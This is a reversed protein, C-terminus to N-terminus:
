WGLGNSTDLTHIPQDIGFGRVEGKTTESHYSIIFPQPNDIVFKQIGRAIRRLTKDKLPRNANVGYKAKIEKSTDFISPCPLSWDIIEAATRWPKQIGSIVELRDPEGHTPEPWVISRGDRRAILFFRKRNTPAGYDCARLERYDIKYGLAKLQSKWKQFERGKKSKMPKGKRVPGWDVFEEVNELMIVRPKVKAAWKLVVWALGRINKERPKGGRAKSHHTCDPSAWMLGVPRGAVAKVPDVEWINECYHKTGPHNAKHMAIAEPDHNIAIDVSRGIAMEIGTSAGGGGAFSDIIIEQM